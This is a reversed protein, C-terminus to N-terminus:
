PSLVDLFASLGRSDSGPAPKGGHAHERREECAQCRVAFPLARLRRESIERACELCSGYKGADLRGLADDIRAVTQASMQALSREIDGQTAADARELDERVDHSRDTRTGRVRSEIDAQVDRRRDDLMRKLDSTRVTSNM